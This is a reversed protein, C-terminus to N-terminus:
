EGLRKRLDDQYSEMFKGIDMFLYSMLRIFPNRIRIIETATFLTGGTKTEEMEGIWHGTFANGEVIDFEYRTYPQKLTTRFRIRNGRKDIEDWLEINGDSELIIIEKLDTRYHYNVNDTVAEYVAQPSAKFTSQRTETRQQPLLLGIILFVLILAFLGALIYLVISM